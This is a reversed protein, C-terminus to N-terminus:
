IHYKDLIQARGPARSRMLVRVRSGFVVKQGVNDMEHNQEREKPTRQRSTVIIAEDPKAVKIGRLIVILVILVLLAIVGIIVWQTVAGSLSDLTM